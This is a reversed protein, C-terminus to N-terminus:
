TAEDGWVDWGPQGSGRAFMELKPLTPYLQDIRKQVEIPKASHEGVPAFITQVVAESALPLPRGEVQTSGVIVFETLPKVISPRVGRAGYPKGDKGVKVWVFAVGRYHFGWENLATIGYDFKPGTVWLFVVGPKELPIPLKYVHNSPMTNYFKAAAGWKTQDGTYSWPPDALIVPYKVQTLDTIKM